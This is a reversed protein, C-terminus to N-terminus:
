GGVGGGVSSDGTGQGRAVEGWRSTPPRRPWAMWWARSSWSPTCTASILGNPREPDAPEVGRRTLTLPSGGRQSNALSYAPLGRRESRQYLSPRVRSYPRRSSSFGNLVTRRRT